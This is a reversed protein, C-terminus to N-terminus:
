PELDFFPARLRHAETQVSIEELSIRLERLRRSSMGELAARLGGQVPSPSAKVLRRGKPTLFLQIGRRDRGDAVRKVAGRAELRDLVGSVTSPHAFMRDSLEGLSLGPESRILNLAWVQPSSLGARRQIAKSYEHVAKFLRRLCNVVEAADQLKGIKGVVSRKGRLRRRVVRKTV